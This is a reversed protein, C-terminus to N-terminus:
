SCGIVSLCPWPSNCETTYDEARQRIASQRRSYLGRGVVNYGAVKQQIAGARGGTHSYVSM